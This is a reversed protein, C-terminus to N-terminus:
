TFLMSFQCVADPDSPVNASCTDIDTEAVAVSSEIIVYERALPDVNGEPMVRFEEVPTIEPVKGSIAVFM